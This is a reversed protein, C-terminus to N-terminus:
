FPIDFNRADFPREITVVRRGRRIEVKCGNLALAALDDRLEKLQQMLGCDTCQGTQEALYGHPCMGMIEDHTALRVEVDYLGHLPRLTLERRAIYVANREPVFSIAEGIIAGDTVISGLNFDPLEAPKNWWAAILSAISTLGLVGALTKSM